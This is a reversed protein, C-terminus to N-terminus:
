NVPPSWRVAVGGWAIQPWAGSALGPVVQIAWTVWGSVGDGSPDGLAGLVLQPSPNRCLRTYGPTAAVGTFIATDLRAGGVAPRTADGLETFVVLMGLETASSNDYAFVCVEHVQSGSPFPLEAHFAGANASARSWYAGSGDGAVISTTGGLPTFAALPFVSWQGITAVDEGQALLPPASVLGLLLATALTHQKM